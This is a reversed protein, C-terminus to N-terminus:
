EFVTAGIHAITSVHAECMYKFDTSLSPCTGDGIPWRGILVAMRPNSTKCVVYNNSLARNAPCYIYDRDVPTFDTLSHERTEPENSDCLAYQVCGVPNRTMDQLKPGTKATIDRPLQQIALRSWSAQRYLEGGPRRAGTPKAAECIDHTSHSADIRRTTPRM